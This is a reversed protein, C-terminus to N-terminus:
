RGEDHAKRGFRRLIEVSLDQCRRLGLLVRYRQFYKSARHMQAAAEGESGSDAHWKAFGFRTYAEGRGEGLAQFRALADQYERFSDQFDGQRGLCTVLAKGRTHVVWRSICVM